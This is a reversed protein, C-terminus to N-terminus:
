SQQQAPYSIIGRLCSCCSWKFLHGWRYWIVMSQLVSANRSISCISQQNSSVQKKQQTKHKLQGQWKPWITYHQEVELCSVSKVVWATPSFNSTSKTFASEKSAYLNVRMVWSTSMETQSTNAHPRTGEVKLFLRCYGKVLKWNSIM